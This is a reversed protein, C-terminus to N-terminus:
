TISVVELLDLHEVLFCTNHLTLGYHLVKIQFLHYRLYDLWVPTYASWSVFLEATLFGGFFNTGSYHFDTQYLLKNNFTYIHTVQILLVTNWRNLTFLINIMMSVALLHAIGRLLYGHSASARLDSTWGGGFWYASIRVLHYWHRTTAAISLYRQEIWALVHCGM